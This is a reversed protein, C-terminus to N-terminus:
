IIYRSLVSYISTLLISLMYKKLYNHSWSIKRNDNTAKIERMKEKEKESYKLNKRFNDTYFDKEKM